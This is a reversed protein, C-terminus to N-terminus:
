LLRKRIPFITNLSLLSDVWRVMMEGLTGVETHVSGWTMHTQKLVNRPGGSLGGCKRLLYISIPHLTRGLAEPLILFFAHQARQEFM